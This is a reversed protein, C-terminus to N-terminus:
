IEDDTMNEEQRGYKMMWWRDNEDDIMTDSTNWRDYGSKVNQIEDDNM